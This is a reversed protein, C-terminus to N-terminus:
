SATGEVKAERERETGGGREDDKKSDAFYQAGTRGDRVRRRQEDDRELIHV